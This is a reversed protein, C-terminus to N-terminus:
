DAADLRVDRNSQDRVQDALWKIAVDKEAETVGTPFGPSQAIGAAFAVAGRREKLPFETSNAAVGLLRILDVIGLKGGGHAGVIHRTAAYAESETVKRTFWCTLWD